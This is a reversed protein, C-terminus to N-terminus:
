WGRRIIRELEGRTFLQRGVFEFYEFFENYEEISCIYCKPDAGVEEPTIYRGNLSDYITVNLEIQPNKM